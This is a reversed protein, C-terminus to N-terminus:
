KSLANKIQRWINKTPAQTIKSCVLVNCYKTRSLSSSVSCVVNRRKMSIKLSLQQHGESSYFSGFLREILM